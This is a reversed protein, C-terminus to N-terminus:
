CTLYAFMLGESQRLLLKVCMLLVFSLDCSPQAFHALVVGIVLVPRQTDHRDAKDHMDPILKCIMQLAYRSQKTM